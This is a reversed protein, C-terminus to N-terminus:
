RPIVLTLLTEPHREAVELLRLAAGEPVRKGQEWARVTEASVNLVDAFVPQSVRLGARLRKIRRPTYASAASATVDRATLKHRTAKAPKMKGHEIAVAETLSAILREGYSKTETKAKKM